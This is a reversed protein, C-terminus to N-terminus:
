SASDGYCVVEVGYKEALPGLVADNWECVAVSMVTRPRFARMLERSFLAQGLLYMGLRGTKTQVVVIDKDRLDQEAHEARDLIRKPGGLIIVGDM